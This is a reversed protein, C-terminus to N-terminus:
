ERSERALGVATTALVRGSPPSGSPTCSSPSPWLRSGRMSRPRRAPGHMKMTPSHPRRAAATASTGLSTTWGEFQLNAPRGLREAKGMAGKFQHLLMTFATGGIALESSTPADATPLCPAAAVRRSSTSGGRRTAARPPLWNVATAPASILFTSGLHSGAGRALGIHTMPLRASPAAPKDNDLAAIVFTGAALRPLSPLHARHGLVTRNRVNRLFFRPTPPAGPGGSPDLSILGVVVAPCSVM